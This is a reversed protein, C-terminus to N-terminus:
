LTLRTENYFRDVTDETLSLEEIGKGKLDEVASLVQPMGLSWVIGWFRINDMLNDPMHRHKSVGSNCYPKM